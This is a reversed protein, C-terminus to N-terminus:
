ILKFSLMKSMHFHTYGEMRGRMMAGSIRIQWDIRTAASFLYLLPHLEKDVRKRVTRISGAASALFSPVSNGDSDTWSLDNGRRTLYVYRKELLMMTVIQRREEETHQEFWFDVTTRSLLPEGLQESMQSNVQNITGDPQKSKGDIDINTALIFVADKTSVKVGDASNEVHGGRNLAVLLTTTRLNEHAKEYEDLLIVAGPRKHVAKVLLGDGQGKNGKDAGFFNTAAGDSKYQAMNFEKFRGDGALAEVSEGHIMEAILGALHTKGCGPPGNLTLVLPGKFGDENRLELEAILAKLLHKQGIFKSQMPDGLTEFTEPIKANAQPTSGLATAHRTGLQSTKWKEALWIAHQLQQYQGFQSSTKVTVNTLASSSEVCSTLAALGDATVSNGELRLTQVSHLPQSLAKALASAGASGIANDQLDLTTLAQNLQLSKALAITGKNGIRNNKVSLDTMVINTELMKGLADIGEDGIYNNDLDLDTLVRNDALAHAILQAGFHGIKLNSLCLARLTGSKSTLVSDLLDMEQLGGTSKLSLTQVAVNRNLMQWLQREAQGTIPVNELHLATLHENHYSLVKFLDTLGHSPLARISVLQLRRLGKSIQLLRSLAAM